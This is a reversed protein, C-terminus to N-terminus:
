LSRKLGPTFSKVRKKMGIVFTFVSLQRTSTRTLEVTFATVGKQFVFETGKCIEHGALIEADLKPNKTRLLDFTWTNDIEVVTTKDRAIFEYKATELPRTIIVAIGKSCDETTIPHSEELERQDLRLSFSDRPIKLHAALIGRYDSVVGGRGSDAPIAWPLEVVVSGDHLRFEINHRTPVYAIPPVLDEIAKDADGDCITVDVVDAKSAILRDLLANKADGISTKPHLPLVTVDRRDRFEFEPWLRLAPVIFAPLVGLEVDDPVMEGWIQVGGIPGDRTRLEGATIRDTLGIIRVPQTGGRYNIEEAYDAYANTNEDIV